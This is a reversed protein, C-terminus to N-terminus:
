ESRMSMTRLASDIRDSGVVGSVVRVARASVVNAPVGFYEEQRIGGDPGLEVVLSVASRANTSINLVWHGKSPWQQAVAYVGDRSTREFELPITRREGDVLGEATGSLPFGVARDHYYAHVLVAADRASPDMPNAPVELSLWPAGASPAGPRSAILPVAAILVAFAGVKWLKSRSM